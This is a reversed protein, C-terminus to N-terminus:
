GSWRWACGTPARSRSASPATSSTTFTVTSTPARNMLGLYGRSYFRRFARNTWDMVDVNRVFADPATERLALEVAEAARLHGAGVSASLILIRPPKTM